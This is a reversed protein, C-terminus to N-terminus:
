VQKNALAQNFEEDDPFRVSEKKARLAYVFKQLYNDANNEFRIIERNLNVFLKNLSNTPVDCISRRFLFCETTLFVKLLDTESKRLSRVVYKKRKDNAMHSVQENRLRGGM